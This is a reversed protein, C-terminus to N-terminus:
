KATEGAIHSELQGGDKDVSSKTQRLNLWEPCRRTTKIQMEMYEFHVAAGKM